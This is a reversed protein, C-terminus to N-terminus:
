QPNTLYNITMILRKNKGEENKLKADMAILQARLQENVQNMESAYMLLDKIEESTWTQQKNDSQLQM